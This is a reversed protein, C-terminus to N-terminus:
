HVDSAHTWYSDHVGAFTINQKSCELATVMMHTSDISHVYNPPFASNQKSKNVPQQDLTEAVSISQLLTQVVNKQSTLKYPQVCPLGLPTLWKVPDGTHAVIKACKAFWEKINNADRFLDGICKITIKALYQSARFMEGNTKFAGKKDKLQKQIQKRAGVFTVGYVSTM